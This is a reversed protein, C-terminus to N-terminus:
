AMSWEVRTVVLEPVPGDPPLAAVTAVYGAGVPVGALWPRGGFPWTAGTGDEDLVIATMPEALGRGTAKLLAEKRVWARLLADNREAAPLAAYREREEGSLVERALADHDVPRLLEIDVGVEVRSAAALVRDGSHSISLRLGEHGVARPVGHARGCKPCTADLAVTTAGTLRGVLRKLLWRGTAYRARDEARRFSEWRAREAPDLLEAAAPDGVVASWDVYVAM